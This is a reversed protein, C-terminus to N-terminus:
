GRYASCSSSGQIEVHSIPEQPFEELLKTLVRIVKIRPSGISYKILNSDQGRLFEAVAKKFQPTAQSQTILEMLRAETDIGQMAKGRQNKILEHEM